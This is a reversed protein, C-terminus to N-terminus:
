ISLYKKENNLTLKLEDGFCQQLLGKPKLVFSGFFSEATINGSQAVMCSRRGLSERFEGRAERWEPGLPQGNGNLKFKWPKQAM